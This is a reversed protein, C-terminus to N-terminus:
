KVELKDLYIAEGTVWSPRHELDLSELMDKLILGAERKNAGKQLEARVTLVHVKQRRTSEAEEEPEPPASGLIEAVERGYMFLSPAKTRRLTWELQEAELMNRATIEAGARGKCWIRRGNIQRCKWGANKLFISISAANRYMM